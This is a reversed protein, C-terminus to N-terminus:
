SRQVVFGLFPTPNDGPENSLTPNNTLIHFKFRKLMKTIEKVTYMTLWNHFNKVRGDSEILIYKELLTHEKSYILHEELLLHPKASWFDPEETASFSRTEREGQRYDLALADFIFLGNPKLARHVNKLVQDRDEPILASFDRNILTILDFQEKLNMLVYNEQIYEIPLEKEAANKRAYDLSHRNFDLGTVSFGLTHFQECYLGPGCGIDLLKKGGPNTVQAAIWRTQNKITSHKLSASDLDPDLHFALMERGVHEDTWIFSESKQYVSPRQLLNSLLGMDLSSKKIFDM